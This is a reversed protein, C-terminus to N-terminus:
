HGFSIPTVCSKMLASLYDLIKYLQPTINFLVQIDAALNIIEPDSRYQLSAQACKMADEYAGNLKYCKALERYLNSLQFPDKYIKIMGEIVSIVDKHHGLTRMAVVYAMMTQFTYRPTRRYNNVVCQSVHLRVLKDDRKSKIEEVDVRNRVEESCGPLLTLTQEYDEENLCSQIKLLQVKSPDIETESIALFKELLSKEGLIVCYEVLSPCVSLTLKSHDGLINFILKHIHLTKPHYKGFYHRFIKLIAITERIAEDCKNLDWQVLARNCRTMATEVHDFGFKKTQIDIAKNIYPLAKIPDKLEIYYAGLNMMSKALMPHTKGLKNMIIKLAKLQHEIAKHQDRSFSCVSAMNMLVEAYIIADAKEFQHCLAQARDLKIKAEKIEGIEVLAQCISKLTSILMPHNEGYYSEQIRLAEDFLVLAAAADGKAGLANGKVMLSDLIHPHKEGYYAKKSALARDIFEITKDRDGLAAYDMALHTLSTAIEPHDPKLDRESLTLARQHFDLAKEDDGQALYVLGLASNIHINEPHDEGFSGIIIERADCLLKEAKVDKGSQRYADGLTVLTNVTRPHKDGFFANETKLLVKLIKKSEKTEGLDLLVKAKASLTKSLHHHGDGYFRRQKELVQDILILAHKTEGLDHLLESKSIEIEDLLLHNEDGYFATLVSLAKQIYALAEKYSGLTMLTKAIKYKTKAVMHHEDGYEAQQVSLIKVLLQYSQKADGGVRLWECLLVTIELTAPHDAGFYKERISIAKELYERCTKDDGLRGFDSGLDAYSPALYIHESGLDRVLIAVAKKRYEIGQKPDGLECYVSAMNALTNAYFSEEIDKSASYIKEARLLIQKAEEFKGLHLYADALNNLNQFLNPHEPGYTKTILAIVQLLAKEQERPYRLNGYVSGLTSFIRILYAPENLGLAKYFSEAENLLKVSLKDKGQQRFVMGISIMIDLLIKQTEIEDKTDCTELKEKLQQLHPLLAQQRMEESLLNHDLHYYSRVYQCVQHLTQKLEDAKKNEIIMIVDQIVQHIRFNEPVDSEELLSFQRLITLTQDIEVEAPDNPIWQRLLGKPIAIEPALFATGMLLNKAQAFGEDSECNAEVQELSLQVVAIMTSKFQREKARRELEYPDSGPVPESLYAKRANLFQKYRECFADISCKKDNIYAIAQTVALPYRGLTTALKEADEDSVPKELMRHIYQKADELTFVDLIIKNIGPGFYRANRTTILVDMKSQDFSEPSYAAALSANPMDDFVILGKGKECLTKYILRYLDKDKIQKLDFGFEAGLRSLQSQLNNEANKEDLGGNLWLVWAYKKERFQQRAHFNALTSKGIGGSGAIQSTVADQEGEDAHHPELTSIVQVGEQHIKLAELERERGTFHNFAPPLGMLPQFTKEPIRFVIRIGNRKYKLIDISGQQDLLTMLMRAEEETISKPSHEGVLRTLNLLTEEDIAKDVIIEIPKEKVTLVRKSADFTSSKESLTVVAAREEITSAIGLAEQGIVNPPQHASAVDLLARLQPMFNIHLANSYNKISITSLESLLTLEKKQEM